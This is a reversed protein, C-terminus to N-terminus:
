CFICCPRASGYDRCGVSVTQGDLSLFNEQTVHSPLQHCITLDGFVLSVYWLKAPSFVGMNV